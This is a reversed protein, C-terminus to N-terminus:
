DTNFASIKVPRNVAASRLELRALVNDGPVQVEIVEPIGAPTTTQQYRLYRVELIVEEDDVDLVQTRVPHGARDIESRVRRDPSIVTNYGTVTGKIVKVAPDLSSFPLAGVLLAALESSNLPLRLERQMIERVDSGSVNRDNSHDVVHISDTDATVVLLSYAINLPLVELRVRDPRSLTVAYRYVDQGLDSSIEVRYLARLTSIESNRQALKSITESSENGAAVVGSNPIPAIRASCGVGLGLIILLAFAQTLRFLLLPSNILSKLGSRSM